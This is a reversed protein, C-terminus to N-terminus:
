IGTSNEVKEVSNSALLTKRAIRFKRVGLRRFISGVGVGRVEASM